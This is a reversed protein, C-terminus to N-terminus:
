EGMGTSCIIRSYRFPRSLGRTQEREPEDCEMMRCCLFCYCGKKIWLNRVELTYELPGHVSLIARTEVNYAASLHPNAAAGPSDKRSTEAISDSFYVKTDNITHMHLSFPQSLFKRVLNAAATCAKSCYCLTVRFLCSACISEIFM